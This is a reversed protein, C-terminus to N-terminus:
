EKERNLGTTQRANEFSANLCQKSASFLTSPLVVTQPGELKPFNKGTPNVLIGLAGSNRKLVKTMVAVDGDSNGACFLAETHELPEIYNELVAKKGEGNVILFKNEPNKTFSRDYVRTFRGMPTRKSINGIIKVGDPKERSYPEYSEKVLGSFNYFEKNSILSKKQIEGLVTSVYIPSSGTIIWVKFGKDLLRQLVDLMPYFAYKEPPYDVLFAQITQRIENETMGEEFTSTESFKMWDEIPVPSLREVIEDMEIINKETEFSDENVRFTPFAFPFQLLRQATWIRWASQGSRLTGKISLYKESNITGDFDFVAIPHKPANREIWRNIQVLKILEQNWHPYLCQLESGQLNPCVFIMWFILFFHVNKRIM